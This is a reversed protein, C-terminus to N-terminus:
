AMLETIMRTNQIESIKPSHGAFFVVMTQNNDAFEFGKEIFQRVNEPSNVQNGDRVLLAGSGYKWIPPEDGGDWCGNVEFCTHLTNMDQDSISQNAKKLCVPAISKLKNILKTLADVDQLSEIAVVIGQLHNDLAQLYPKVDSWRASEEVEVYFQFNTQADDVWDRWDSATYQERYQWPVLVTNYENSYYSFRWDQPLDEPYFETKWQDYEWGRAGVRIEPKAHRMMM